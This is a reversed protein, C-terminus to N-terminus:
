AKKALIQPLKGFIVDAVAGEGCPCVNEFRSAVYGDAPCFAYDAGELMSLDNEADGICILIKRGLRAQLERAARLKSIGKAQVDVIRHAARYIEAVAGYRQRLIAEVKDFCARDEETGSYLGSVTADKLPGYVCFKLFPGMDEDFDACRAQCRNNACFAEWMPNHKFLYHAQLGEHETVLEPFLEELERMTRALDLDLAHAFLLEQKQLDYAAGGNYLLLPANMPVVDTFVRSMPLSRGTNITFAGGNDMFYRIAELNKEPISGDRATMTHDFDSTILIDSFMRM